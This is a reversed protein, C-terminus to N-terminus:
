VHPRANGHVLPSGPGVAGAYLSLPDLSKMGIGATLTGKGLRYLDTRGELSFVAKTDGSGHHVRRKKAQLVMQKELSIHQIICTYTHKDLEEPSVTLISRKQFTGDQNPLTERLGVGEDLDEGNKQWSIMVPKPYFGTAHCVVPSSSDKQFLSVEPPVKRELTSVYKKLSQTCENELYTKQFMAEGRRELKHKTIVAKANAATWTSTNPDLSLFDEGDYGYQLYGRKTGDDHLECGYMCQITHVGIRSM